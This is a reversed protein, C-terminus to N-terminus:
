VLLIKLNGKANKVVTNAVDDLVASSGVWYIICLKKHLFVM